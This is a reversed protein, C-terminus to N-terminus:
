LCLMNMNLNWTTWQMLFRRQLQFNARHGNEMWRAKDGRRVHVCVTKPVVGKHKSSYDKKAQYTFNQAILLLAQNIYSFVERYLWSSIKTFYKFSCFHGRIHTNEKPLNFFTEQFDYHIYDKILKWSKPQETLLNLKLNPFVRQLKTMKRSFLAKRNNHNAIGM